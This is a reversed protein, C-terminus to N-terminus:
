EEEDEAEIPCVTLVVLVVPVDDSAPSRAVVVATPGVTDDDEEEDDDDNDGANRRAPDPSLLGFDEPDPATLGPSRAVKSEFDFTSGAATV